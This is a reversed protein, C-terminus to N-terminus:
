LTIAFLRHGPPDIAFHDFKGTVGPLPITTSLPLSPSTQKSAALSVAFLFFVALTRM